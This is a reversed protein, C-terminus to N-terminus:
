YRGPGRGRAVPVARSQRFYRWLTSYSIGTEATIEKATMASQWAPLAAELETVSYGREAMKAARKADAPSLDRQKARLAVMVADLCDPTITKDTAAEIISSGASLVAEITANRIERRPAITDLTPLILVRGKRQMMRAVDDPSHESALWVRDPDYPTVLQSQRDHPLRVTPRIYALRKM